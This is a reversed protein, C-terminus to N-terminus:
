IELLPRTFVTHTSNPLQPVSCIHTSTSSIQNGSGQHGLSHSSRGSLIKRDSDGKAILKATLSTLATSIRFRQSFIGISPKKVM